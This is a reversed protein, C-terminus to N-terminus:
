RIFKGSIQVYAVPFKLNESDNRGFDVGEM